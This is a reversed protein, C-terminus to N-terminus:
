HPKLVELKAGYGGRGSDFATVLITNHVILCKEQINNMKQIPASHSTHAFTKKFIRLKRQIHNFYQM